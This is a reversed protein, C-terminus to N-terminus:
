MLHNRKRRPSSTPPLRLPIGRPFIGSPSPSSRTTPRGFRASRGIAVEPSLPASSGPFPTSNALIAATLRLAALLLTAFDRRVTYPNASKIAPNVASILGPLNPAFSIVWAAVARPNIGHRKRLSFPTLSSRALRRPCFEGTGTGEVQDTSSQSM